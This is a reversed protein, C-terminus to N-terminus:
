ADPSVPGRLARRDFHPADDGLHLALTRLLSGLTATQRENLAALLRRKTTLHSHAVTDVLALGDRTLRVSISRRDDPNPRREVLGREELRDIRNTIAGTTVM